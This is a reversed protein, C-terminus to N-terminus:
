DKFLHEINLSYRYDDNSFFHHQNFDVIEKVGNQWELMDADSLDCLKTIEKVILHFRTYDDEVTDYTEDIFPSFTKFGIKRLASLSHPRGMLIFPHALAFCRYVKETFFLCDLQQAIHQKGSKNARSFYNTETVVSFASNQFYHFDDVRIDVPNSRESTINLRLPLQDRYTNINRYNTGIKRFFEEWNGDGEFSYFSQSVLNNQWMKDLLMIRHERNLKNFCLFKKEKIAPEYKIAYEFGMSYNRTGLKFSNGSLVTIRNGLNMEDAFKKYVDETDMAGSMYIFDKSSIGESFVDALRHIKLIIPDMVGEAM